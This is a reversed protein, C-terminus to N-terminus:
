TKFHMQLYAYKIMQVNLSRVKDGKKWWTM